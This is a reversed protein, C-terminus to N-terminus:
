WAADLLERLTRPLGLDAILEALVEAAPVGSAWRQVCATSSMPAARSRAARLRM